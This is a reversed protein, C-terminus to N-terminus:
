IGLDAVPLFNPYILLILDKKRVNTGQKETITQKLCLM